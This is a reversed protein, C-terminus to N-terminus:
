SVRKTPVRTLAKLLYSVRLLSRCNRCHTARSRDGARSARRKTPRRTVLFWGNVRQRVASTDCAYPAVWVRDLGSRVTRQLALAGDRSRRSASRVVYLWPAIVYSIAAPLVHVPPRPARSPPRQAPAKRWSSAYGPAAYDSKVRAPVHALWLFAGRNRVLVEDGPSPFLSGRVYALLWSNPEVGSAARVVADVRRWDGSRAFAIRSCVRPPRRDLGNASRHFRDARRHPSFTAPGAHRRRFISQLRRARQGFAVLAPRAANRSM